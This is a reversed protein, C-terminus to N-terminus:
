GLVMVQGCCASCIGVDFNYVELNCIRIEAEDAKIVVLKVKEKLADILISKKLDSDLCSAQDEHHTDESRIQLVAPQEASVNIYCLFLMDGACSRM